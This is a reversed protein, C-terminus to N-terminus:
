SGEAACRLVDAASFSLAVKDTEVSGGLLDALPWEARPEVSLEEELDGGKIYLVGGLPGARGSDDLLPAVTRFFEPMNKVSRGLVLDFTQPAVDQPARGAIARANTASAADACAEVVDIKKKRSDVLAFALDPRCIALPLGPFGGGTGVDVVRCGPELEAFGPVRLRPPFRVDLHMTQTHTGSGAAGPDASRRHERTARSIDRPGRSCTEFIQRFKPDPNPTVACSAFLALSPLYHKEVLTPPDLGKRSVVNVKANWDYLTRAAVELRRWRDDDVCPLLARQAPTFWDDDANAADLRTTARSRSTRRSWRPARARATSRLARGVAAVALVKAPHM